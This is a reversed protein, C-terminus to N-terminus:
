TVPLMTQGFLFDKQLLVFCEGTVGDGRSRSPTLIQQSCARTPEVEM